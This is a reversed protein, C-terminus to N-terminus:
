FISAENNHLYFCIDAFGGFGGNHKATYQAYEKVIDPANNVTAAFDAERFVVIDSLSDGIYVVFDYIIKKDKIIDIRTNVDAEGFVCKLDLIRRKTIELGNKDKSVFLFEWGQSKMFNIMETDYAGFKKMIKGEATYYSSSETLIGDVDSIIIKKANLYKEDKSSIKDFYSKYEAELVKRIKNKTNM